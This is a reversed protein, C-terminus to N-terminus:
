WNVNCTLQYAVAVRSEAAALVAHVLACDGATTESCGRAPHASHHTHVSIFTCCLAPCAQLLSPVPRCPMCTTYAAAQTCLQLSNNIVTHVLVAILAVLLECKSMGTAGTYQRQMHQTTSRQAQNAAAEVAPQCHLGLCRCMAALTGGPSASRSAPTRSSRSLLTYVDTCQLGTYRLDGSCAATVGLLM